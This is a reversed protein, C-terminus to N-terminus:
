ALAVLGTLYDRTRHYTDAVAFWALRRRRPTATGAQIAVEVLDRGTQAFSSSAIKGAALRYLRLDIDPDAAHPAIAAALALYLQVSHIDSDDSIPAQEIYSSLASVAEDPNETLLEAPLALKGIIIPQEAQLWNLAGHLFPKHAMMWEMNASGGKAGEDIAIPQIALDLVHKAIVALGMTGAVEPKLIDIIGIRLDANMPDNALREILKGLLVETADIGIPPEGNPAAQLFARELVQLALAEWRNAQAPVNPIDGVLDFAHMILGRALADEISALRYGDSMEATESSHILDVYDPVGTVAFAEALHDYFDARAPDTDRLLAAVGAYDRARLLQQRRYRYVGDAKPFHDELRAAVRTALAEDLHELTGLASELDERSELADICPAILEGALRAAGADKAIRGLRVCVSPELDDRALFESRILTLAELRLGAKHLLQVRLFPKEVDIVPPLANVDTLARGVQGLAIWRDWDDVRRTLITEASEDATSGMVGFADISLLLDGLEPRIPSNENADLAVYLRRERAIPMAAAALAHVQPAWVDEHMLPTEAAEAIFPAIADDRYGAAEIVILATREAQEAMLALLSAHRSDAAAQVILRKRFWGAEDAELPRRALVEFCQEFNKWFWGNAEAVDHSPPVVIVIRQMAREGDEIALGVLSAAIMGARAASKGGTITLIDGCGIVNPNRAYFDWIAALLDKDSRITRWLAGAGVGESGFEQNAGEEHM